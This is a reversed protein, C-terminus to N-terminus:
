RDVMMASGTCSYLSYLSDMAISAVTPTLALLYPLASRYLIQCNYKDESFDLDECDLFASTSPPLASVTAFLASQGM